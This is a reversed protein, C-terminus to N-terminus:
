GYKKPTFDGTQERPDTIVFPGAAKAKEKNGGGGGEGGGGDDDGDDDFGYEEALKGDDSLMASHTGDSYVDFWYCFREEGTHFVNEEGVYDEYLEVADDHPHGHKSEAQTPASIVIYDPDIATLADLYPDDEEMERFFTRSGHHSAGLAFSPLRQKHYKTIHNEFACRDADGVIMIWTNEKGFKIVGCQEHIRARRKEADEENVDDTVHEAPSLFHYEGEGYTVATKSGEIVVEADKGYKDTVKKILKTLEEHKSGYKKSPKHNSHWVAKIDVADSLEQTGCLHDDHPHTNAFAELSAGNLLDTMLRVVDIGGNKRDFNIDILVIRYVDGDRIFAIASAGQGVYLFAIRVLINTDSPYLLDHALTKKAM